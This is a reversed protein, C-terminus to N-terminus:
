FEYAAFGVSRPDDDARGAEDFLQERRAVITVQAEHDDRQRGSALALVDDDTLPFLAAEDRFPLDPQGDAGLARVECFTVAELEGAADRVLQGIRMLMTSLWM